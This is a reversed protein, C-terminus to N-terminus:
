YTELSRKADDLHKFIKAVIVEDEDLIAPDLTALLGALDDIAEGIHAYSDAVKKCKEEYTEGSIVIV